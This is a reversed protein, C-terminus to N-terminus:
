VKETQLKGLLGEFDEYPALHDTELVVTCDESLEYRHFGHSTAAGTFDLKMQVGDEEGM